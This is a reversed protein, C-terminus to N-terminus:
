LVNKSFICELVCCHSNFVSSMLSVIWLIEFVSWSSVAAPQPLALLSHLRLAAAATRLRATVGFSLLPPPHLRGWCCLKGQAGLWVSIALACPRSHLILPLQHAASSSSLSFYRLASSILFFFLSVVVSHGLCNCFRCRCLHIMMWLFIGLLTGWSRPSWAAQFFFFLFFICVCFVRTSMVPSFSILAKPSNHSLDLPGSFRSGARRSPRLLRCLKRLGARTVCLCM